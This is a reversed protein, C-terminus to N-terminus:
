KALALEEDIIATFAELSQAGSLERGNIFFVPTGTLGLAAGESMEKQIAIKHKGAAFCGEFSQINLGIEKAYAKLDEASVKPSREYLKDHYEWFKGQDRACRSAEAAQRAQPHIAELPLDKHVVRVRGEYRKLLEVLTPQVTKCFPCQYDEFKVITVPATQPGRVPADNLGMTVRYRPPPNLYTAVQAKARLSSFYEAKRAAIARDTLYSRIQDHIRALEVGLRLKNQDYFNQISEESVVGVKNDIEQKLLNEVTLNRSKAERTILIASIREDLKQKQIKYLKERQDFYEKGAFKEFDALGITEGDVVALRLDDRGRCGSLPALLLSFLLPLLVRARLKEYGFYM